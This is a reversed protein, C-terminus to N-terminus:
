GDGKLIGREALWRVSPAAEPLELTYTADPCLREALSLLRAMDLRGEALAGHADRSGDNNHIHFHAIEPACAELWREAPVPSYASIHGVDLCLRLKPSNVKRVVDTLLEPMQELVNELCVTM